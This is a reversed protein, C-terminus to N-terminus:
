ANLLDEAKRRLHDLVRRTSAQEEQGVSEVLRATMEAIASRAAALELSGLTTLSGDARALGDAALHALVEDLQPPAVKLADSTAQRWADGQDQAHAHAISLANLVVWASYTRIKTTALTKTLLARLANETPGIVTPLPREHTM